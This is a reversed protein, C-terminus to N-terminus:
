LKYSFEGLLHPYGKKIANLFQRKVRNSFFFKFSFVITILLAGIISLVTISEIFDNSNESFIAASVFISFVVLMSLSVTKEVQIRRKREEKVSKHIIVLEEYSLVGEKIIKYIYSDFLIKDFVV